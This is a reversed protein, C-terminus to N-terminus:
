VRKFRWLIYSKRVNEPPKSISFLQWSQNSGFHHSIFGRSNHSNRFSTETTKYPMFSFDNTNTELTNISSM